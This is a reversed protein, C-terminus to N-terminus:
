ILRRRIALSIQEIVLVAVLVMLIIMTVREYEFSARQTNLIM